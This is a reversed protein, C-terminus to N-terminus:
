AAGTSGYPLEGRIEGNTEGRLARLVRLSNTYQTTATAQERATEPEDTVRRTGGERDPNPKPAMRCSARAIDHPSADRDPNPKPAM